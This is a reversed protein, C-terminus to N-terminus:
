AHRSRVNSQITCPRPRVGFCIRTSPLSQQVHTTLMNGWLHSCTNKHLRENSSSIYAGHYHVRHQDDNGLREDLM